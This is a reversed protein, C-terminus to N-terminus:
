PWVFETSETAKLGSPRRKTEPEKSLVRRRHSPNLPLGMPEGRWPWLFETSETAKLGSPLRKTEPEASLVRRRHSPNLPSGM